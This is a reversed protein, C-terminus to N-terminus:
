SAYELVQEWFFQDESCIEKRHAFPDTFAGEFNVDVEIIAGDPLQDVSVM